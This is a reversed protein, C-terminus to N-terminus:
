HNCRPNCLPWLLPSTSCCPRMDGLDGLGGIGASIGSGENWFMHNISAELRYGREQSVDPLFQNGQDCAPLKAAQKMALPKPDVSISIKTPSEAQDETPGNTNAGRGIFLITSTTSKEIGRDDITVTISIWAPDTAPEPSIWAVTKQNNDFLKGASAEWKYVADPGVGPADATFLLVEEPGAIQKSESIDVPGFDTDSFDAANLISFASFSVVSLAFLWACSGHSRHYATWDLSEKGASAKRTNADAILVAFTGSLVSCAALITCAGVLWFFEHPADFSNLFGPTLLLLGGALAVLTKSRQEAAKSFELNNAM